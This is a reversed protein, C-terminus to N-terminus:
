QTLSYPGSADGKRWVLRDVGEAVLWALLALGLVLGWIGLPAPVAELAGPALTGLLLQIAIGLAVAGHLYPNPLPMLHTHRAAYAFFLQGLTMFHFTATRAVETASLAAQIRGWGPLLALLSLAFAAKITGTLLIFRLSPADLLPSDKPRPPRDLVQPNRELALALAPLGDTVLNIWLIQVATLPLLLYGAEDRLNLLAAFVMGLAVVLVESLNTSFLFRIFKQINEYISRGEEIAAVITAFNDDLLVLDAVERSVESGRQGMAVGVDARKLAPADNIGDGTVAVVEGAKQFAEVIRLKDEPKVRAFVDVELLEEDSLEGIEDGTAVVEAPIGVQRAIALATAPHDGTVMVVRVGAKLVKAVAEPVEPRPPDLLLVFGLFSLGEEREGEGHALALVRFGEKAYAEAQELLSAKDEPSLALRPILAEPAGKLFSGEPTTVRMYKWASDFPRESLRPHEHRVQQVNLHRAAYRLLGLELPDGAGTELDADNCLVMALLARQPDPGVVKQVEMRNETLTGTKDTAIVTVSGLAEVASLRRVVAKRRAMREVGLALALTLVAPLGEPVAAVALAVAFLLVQASFGEALFGLAVLAAALGMVWRAVRHGFAELRRELPTKEEEMEALLGAIRGMASRLGTRSVEMLARGRVLLTGSFVEDRVRKEVPVSEGTLLSEDVLVGSAELLVGDAPIRDGAELRVVDGPVIERSPLHQFRGDRLVWAMPEALAKLRRLAEESRKEQLTGLTANLILIALIALAELPLGHAGEYLWLGLDVALAFLLIYILPSQFQRLFRQWLPESPKEPLANPGYEVLRKQAEQSTLGRM